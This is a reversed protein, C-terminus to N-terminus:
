VEPMRVAKKKPADEKKNIKKAIKDKIFFIDQSNITGKMPLKGLEKAKM